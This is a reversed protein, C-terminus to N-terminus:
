IKVEKATNDILINLPIKKNSLAHYHVNNKDLWDFTAEMLWNQRATYIIIYEFRYLKNVRDIMKPIPKANLCEKATMWKQGVCLTDDMDIGIIKRMKVNGGRNKEFRRGFRSEAEM